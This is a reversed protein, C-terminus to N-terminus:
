RVLGHEVSRRALADASRVCELSALLEDQVLDEFGQPIGHLEIVIENTAAGTGVREILGSLHFWRGGGDLRLDLWVRTGVSPSVVAPDLLVRVGGVALDVIRTRIALERATVVV